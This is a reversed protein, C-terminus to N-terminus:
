IYGCEVMIDTFAKVRVLCLDILLLELSDMWLAVAILVTDIDEDSLLSRTLSERTRILYCLYALDM